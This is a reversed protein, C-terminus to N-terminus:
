KQVQNIVLNLEKGANVKVQELQVFLDIATRCALSTMESLTFTM